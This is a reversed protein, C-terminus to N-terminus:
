GSANNKLVVNCDSKKVMARNERAMAKKNGFLVIFRQSVQRTIQNFWEELINLEQRLGDFRSHFRVSSEYRHVVFDTLAHRMKVNVDNRAAPFVSESPKEPWSVRVFGFFRRIKHM